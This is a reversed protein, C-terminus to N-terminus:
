LGKRYKLKDNIMDIAEDMSATVPGHVYRTETEGNKREILLEDYAEIKRSLSNHFIYVFVQELLSRDKKGPVIKVANVDKYLYEDEPMKLAGDWTIEFHTDYVSIVFPPESEFFPEM